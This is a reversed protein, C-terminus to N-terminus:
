KKLNSVFNLELRKIYKSPSMQVEVFATEFALVPRFFPNVWIQHGLLNSAFESTSIQEM